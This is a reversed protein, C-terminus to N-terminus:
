LRKRAKPKARTQRLDELVKRGDPREFPVPIKGLDVPVIEGRRRQPVTHAMVLDRFEM